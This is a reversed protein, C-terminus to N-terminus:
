SSIMALWSLGAFGPVLPWLALLCVRRGSAAAAAKRRSIDRQSEPKKVLNELQATWDALHVGLRVRYARTKAAFANAAADAARYLTELDLPSIFVRTPEQSANALIPDLGHDSGNRHPLESTMNAPSPKAHVM